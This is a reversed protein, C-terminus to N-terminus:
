LIVKMICNKCDFDLRFTTGNDLRLQLAMPKGGEKLCMGLQRRICHKCLMVPTDKPHTLEYPVTTLSAIIEAASSHPEIADHCQQQQPYFRLREQTLQETLTRRWSTLTSSPIFYNKKYRVDITRAEFISDGLKSLQRQINETQHTRALEAPTETAISATIGDEDTMTIGHEDVTIDVCIRRDASPKSLLKDFMQDQNRFLAKATSPFRFTEVNNVRFGVLKGRDIYCLGDGNHLQTRKDIPEGLSKPTDLNADPKNVNKVFGRNFSKCINPEFTLSTHGTSSRYFEKPHKAIVADLAQSYAATINKVYDVDKLRGEIKLSSAGAKLLAELNHIQCNDKLSLLHKGRVITKGEAILDYKMRCVQACEGRNASRGFLAESANCRGSLGVCLAGHVFVELATDPCAQHIASIEDITLERALVVQPFGLAGLKRVKEVTRNDMQTSAHLPIPPLTLSLIRLDQIILADVHIDWLQHILKEVAQLEKDYIITNVTVYVKAKYLHAFEVLKAIDEISNGAAARAGFRPAGIYVADAGHRIAEIGIDATKAPSLLEIARM